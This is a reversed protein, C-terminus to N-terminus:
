VPTIEPRLLSEVEAKGELLASVHEGVRRAADIQATLASPEVTGSQVRLLDLRLSEMAVVVTQLRAVSSPDASARLRVAEDELQSAIRPVETLAARAADPLQQWLNQIAGGLAVVTAEGDTVARPANKVGFERFMWREVMQFLRGRVGPGRAVGADVVGRATLLGSVMSTTAWMFGLAYSQADIALMAGGITIIAGSVAIKIARTPSAPTTDTALRAREQDVARRVSRYDYGTRTLERVQRAREALLAGSVVFSAASAFGSITSIISNIDFLVNGRPLTKLLIAIAGTLVGAMAYQQVDTGSVNRLYERVPAPIVPALAQSQGLEAALADASVPRDAANKSLCRDIAGALSV